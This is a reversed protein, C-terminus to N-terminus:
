RGNELFKLAQRAKSYRPSYALALNLCERAQMKKELAMYAAALNTYLEPSPTSEVGRSYSEAALEYRGLMMLVSGKLNHVERFEPALNEAKELRTLAEDAIARKQAPRYDQSGASSLLFAAIGAQNNARWDKIAQWAFGAMAVLLMGVVVPRIIGGRQMGDDSATAQAVRIGALLLVIYAATVSLHLPFFALCSIAVFVLGLTLIGLWYVKESDTERRFRNISIAIPSLLLALFIMLGPLGVEEWVQLYENHVERFAGSQHLLRVSKGAETEARFYFFDRGFTNLGRGLWPEEKIMQWALWYVPIRGATALSLNGRETAELVRGVRQTVGAKYAVGLSGLVAVMLVLWFIVLDRRIGKGERFVWWHHFVVWVLLCVGLGLSATLGRAFALGVLNLGILVGAIIRIWLRQRTAVYYVLVIITLGFLFGGSNVEGIFGAPNIRGHIVRGTSSRMWDILGYYQLMTLVGNVGTAAGIWLWVSQQFPITSISRLVWFLLSFVLLSKFGSWSLEPSSSILTHFGVYTIGGFLIWEWGSLHAQISMRKFAVLLFILLATVLVCFSDKPLRFTDWGVFSIVFPLVALAVGAVTQIVWGRSVYEKKQNVGKYKV